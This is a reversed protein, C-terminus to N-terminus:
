LPDREVDILAKARVLSKLAVEKVHKITVDKTELRERLRTFATQLNAPGYMGPSLGADSQPQVMLRLAMRAAQQHNVVLLAPLHSNV